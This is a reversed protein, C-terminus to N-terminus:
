ENSEILINNESKLVALSAKIIPLLAEIESDSCNSLLLELQRFASSKNQLEPYFIPWPDAKLTRLLPFLIEMKPNGVYNEINMVTRADIDIIDAVKAQTLGLEHRAKKVTDGLPRSFVYM